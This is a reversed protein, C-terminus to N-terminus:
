RQDPGDDLPVGKCVLHPRHDLSLEREVPEHRVAEDELGGGAEEQSPAYFPFWSCCFGDEYTLMWIGGAPEDEVPILVSGGRSEQEAVQAYTANVIHAAELNSVYMTLQPQYYSIQEMHTYISDHGITDTILGTLERVMAQCETALLQRLRAIESQRFPDDM